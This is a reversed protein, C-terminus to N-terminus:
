TTGFERLSLVSTQDFFQEGEGDAAIHQKRCTVADADAAVCLLEPDSTITQFSDGDEHEGTAALVTQSFDYGAEETHTIPGWLCADFVYTPNTGRHCILHGCQARNQPGTYSIGPEASMLAQLPALDRTDTNAGVNGTGHTRGAAWDWVHCHCMADVPDASYVRDTYEFTGECPLNQWVISNLNNNNTCTVCMLHPDSTITTFSNDPQPEATAVVEGDWSCSNFFFEGGYKHCLIHSCEAPSQPGDYAWVTNTSFKHCTCREDGEPTSDYGRESSEMTPECPLNSWLWSGSQSHHCTPQVPGADCLLDPDSTIVTSEDYGGSATAVIHGDWACYDYNYVSDYNNCVLHGCQAASAPGDYSELQGSIPNHCQCRENGDPAADYRGDEYDLGPECPLNQWMWARDGGTGTQTCSVCFVSPDSTITTFSGDDAAQATAIVEGDWSCSDFLYGGAYHCLIHACEAATQPGGYVYDNGGVWHCRCREDGGAEGIGTGQRGGPELHPACPLNEWQWDYNDPYENGNEVATCTVIGRGEEEDSLQQCRTKFRAFDRIPFGANADLFNQCDDMFSIFALACEESPCAEPLDCSVSDGQLLRHGGGHHNGSPCCAEMVEAVRAAAHSASCDEDTATEGCTSCSSPCVQAVPLTEDPDLASFDGTRQGTEYSAGTEHSYLTNLDFHCGFAVLAKCSNGTAAAVGDPDDRCSSDQALTRSSFFVQGLCCFKLLSPVTMVCFGTRGM